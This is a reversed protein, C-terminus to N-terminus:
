RSTPSPPAIRWHGGKGVYRQYVALLNGAAMAVTANADLWCLQADAVATRCAHARVIAQALDSADRSGVVQWDNPLIRRIDSYDTAVAPTGVAMAELVVNPFGEHVSTSFHVDSQAILSVADPRQGAFCIRSREPMAEYRSQVLQAYNASAEATANGYRLKDGFSAGVFLVHWRPDFALLAEAVSLALLYDKPAAVTAVMTAVLADVKGGFFEDRCATASATAKQRLAAPEVGNWVVHIDVDPLSFLRKAHRAGASSNAIVGDALWRTPRHVLWQIPRLRYGSSRESNLVPVACGIAALRAYLNGDFLFGHVIDPAWSRIFRRLRGIVAFDLRSRKDDVEAVVGASELDALRPVDRTLLYVAVDHGMRQLERAYGILQTEAGGYRLGSNVFLIRM